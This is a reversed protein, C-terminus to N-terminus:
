STSILLLKQQRAEQTRHWPARTADHCRNVSSRLPFSSAECTVQVSGLKSVAVQVSGLEPDEDPGQVVPGENRFGVLM